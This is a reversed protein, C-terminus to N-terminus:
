KYMKNVWLWFNDYDIANGGEITNDSSTIAHPWGPKTQPFGAGITFGISTDKDVHNPRAIWRVSGDCYLVNVGKNNHPRLMAPQGPPGDKVPLYKLSVTQYCAVMANWRLGHASWYGDTKTPPPPPVLQHPRLSVGGVKVPDVDFFGQPMCYSYGSYRAYDSDTKYIDDLDGVGPCTLALRSPIYKAAPTVIDYGIHTVDFRPLNWDGLLAGLRQAIPPSGTFFLENGNEWVAFPAWGKNDHCYNQIALGIQHQNAACTVNQAQQRAKSLAPLLISILLAIIGIVVLLEVLTFGSRKTKSGIMGKEM